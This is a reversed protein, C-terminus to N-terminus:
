RLDSKTIVHKVFYRIYAELTIPLRKTPCIKMQFREYLDDLSSEDSYYEEEDYATGHWGDVTDFRYTPTIPSGDLLDYDFAFIMPIRDILDNTLKIFPIDTRVIAAGFILYDSLGQVTLEVASSVYESTTMIKCDKHLQNSYMLYENLMHLDLDDGEFNDPLTELIIDDLDFKHQYMFKYIDDKKNSYVRHCLLERNRNEVYMGIDAKTYPSFRIRYM